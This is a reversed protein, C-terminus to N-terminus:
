LLSESQLIEASAVALHPGAGVRGAPGEPRPQGGLCPVTTKADGAAERTEQRHADEGLGQRQPQGLGKGAGGPGDKPKPGTPPQRGGTVEQPGGPAWWLPPLASCGQGEWPRRGGGGQTGGHARGSGLLGVETGVSLQRDLGHPLLQSGQQGGHLQESLAVGPALDGLDLALQGRYGPGPVSPLPRPWASRGGGPLSLDLVTDPPHPLAWPVLREAAPEAYRLRQSYWYPSRCPGESAPARGCDCPLSRGQSSGLGAKDSPVTISGAEM